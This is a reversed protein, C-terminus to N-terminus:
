FGPLALQFRTKGGRDPSVLLVELRRRVAYFAATLGAPGGGVVILEPM